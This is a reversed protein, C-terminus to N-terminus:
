KNNMWGRKFLRPPDADLLMRIDVADRIHAWGITNQRGSPFTASRSGWGTLCYHRKQRRASWKRAASRRSRVPVSGPSHVLATHAERTPGPQPGRVAASLGRARASGRGAMAWRVRAARLMSGCPAGASMAAPTFARGGLMQTRTLKTATAPISDDCM